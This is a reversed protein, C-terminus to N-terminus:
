EHTEEVNTQENFSTTSTGPVDNDVSEFDHERLPRRAEQQHVHWVSINHQNRTHPVGTLCYRCQNSWLTHLPGEEREESTPSLPGSRYDIGSSQSTNRRPGTRGSHVVGTQTSSSPTNRQEIPMHQQTIETKSPRLLYTRQPFVPTTLRGDITRRLFTTQVLSEIRAHFSQYSGPVRLHEALLHEGMEQQTCATVVRIDEEPLAQNCRELWRQILDDHSVQQADPFNVRLVQEILSSPLLEGRALCYPIVEKEDLILVAFSSGPHHFPVLTHLSAREQDYLACDIHILGEASFLTYITSHHISVNQQQLSMTYTRVHTDM